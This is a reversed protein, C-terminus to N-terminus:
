ARRTFPDQHALQKLPHEQWVGQAFERWEEPRAGRRLGFLGRMLNLMGEDVQYNGFQDYVQDFLQSGEITLTNM